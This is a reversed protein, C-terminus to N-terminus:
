FNLQPADTQNGHVLEILDRVLGFLYVASGAAYIAVVV